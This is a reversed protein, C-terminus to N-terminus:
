RGTTVLHPQATSYASSWVQALDIYHSLPSTVYGSALRRTTVPAAAFLCSDKQQLFLFVVVVAAVAIAFVFREGREEGSEREGCEGRRANRDSGVM